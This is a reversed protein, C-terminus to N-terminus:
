TVRICRHERQDREFPVAGTLARGTGHNEPRRLDHDATEHSSLRRRSSASSGGVRDFASGTSLDAADVRRAGRRRELAGARRGAFPPAKTSLTGVASADALAVASATAATAGCRSGHASAEAQPRIPASAAGHHSGRLSRDCQPLTHRDAQQRRPAPSSNAPLLPQDPLCVTILWQWVTAGM